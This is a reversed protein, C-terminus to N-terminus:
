DLGSRSRDLEKEINKKLQEIVVAHNETDFGSAAEVVAKPIRAGIAQGSFMVLDGTQKDTEWRYIKM